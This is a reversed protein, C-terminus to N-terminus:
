MCTTNEVRPVGALYLAQQKLDEDVGWWEQICIVAPATKSGAEYGPLKDGFEVKELQAM